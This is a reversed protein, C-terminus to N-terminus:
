MVEMIINEIHNTEELSYIGDNLSAYVEIVDFRIEKDTPNKSIYEGAASRMHAQKKYDVAEAANGFEKGKRTKVEVFVLWEKNEAIIDIEGQRARFNMATIKYKKKKLLKYAIYEGFDGLDKNHRSM